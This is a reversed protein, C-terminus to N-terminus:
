CNELLTFLYSSPIIRPFFAKLVVYMMQAETNNYGQQWRAWDRIGTVDLLGSAYTVKGYIYDMALLYGNWNELLFDTNNTYLVYNYTGIM